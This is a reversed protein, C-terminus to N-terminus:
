LPLRAVWALSRDGPIGLDDLAELYHRMAQGRLRSRDLGVLPLAKKVCSGACLGCHADAGEEGALMQAIAGMVEDHLAEVKDAFGKPDRKAALALHDLGSEVHGAEERATAAFVSAIRKDPLNGLESYLAVAMSELMIEQIVLCAILDGQEAHRLLAERVQHWYRADPKIIPEVGAATAAQRFAEAHRLEAAAHRVAATQGGIDPILAVLSAYNKMGVVEGTIAQSLLDAYVQRQDPTTADALLTEM